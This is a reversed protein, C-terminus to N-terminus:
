YHYMGGSREWALYDRYRERAKYEADSNKKFQAAVKRKILYLDLPETELLVDLTIGLQELERSFEDFLMEIDDDRVEIPSRGFIPEM